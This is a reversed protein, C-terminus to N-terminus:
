YFSLIAPISLPIVSNFIFFGSRSYSSTAKNKFALIHFYKLKEVM